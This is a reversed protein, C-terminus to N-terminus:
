FNIAFTFIFESGNVNSYNVTAGIQQSLLKILRLGLTSASELSQTSALGPGSDKYILKVRKSKAKVPM